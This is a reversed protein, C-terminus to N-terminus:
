PGGQCFGQAGRKKLFFRQNKKKNKTNIQSFFEPLNQKWKQKKTGKEEWFNTWRRLNMREGM